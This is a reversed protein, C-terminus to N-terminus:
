KEGHAKNYAKKFVEENDKMRQEYKAIIEEANEPDAKELEDAKIVNKDKQIMSLITSVIKM